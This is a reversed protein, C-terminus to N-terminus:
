ALAHHSGRWADTEDQHCESCVDSGVYRPADSEQAEASLTMCGLATAVLTAALARRLSTTLESRFVQAM